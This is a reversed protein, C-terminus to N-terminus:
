GAHSGSASEGKRRAPRPLYPTADPDFLGEEDLIRVVENRHRARRMAAALYRASEVGQAVAPMERDSHGDVGLVGHRLLVEIVLWTTSVDGFRRREQRVRLWDSGYPTRQREHVPDPPQESLRRALLHVIADRVVDTHTRYPWRGDLLQGIAEYVSAPMVLYFARSRGDPDRRETYFRGPDYGELM